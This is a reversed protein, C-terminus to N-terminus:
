SDWDTIPDTPLRSLLNNSPCPTESFAYTSQAADTNSDNTRSAKSSGRPICDMAHTSLHHIQLCCSIDVLFQYLCDLLMIESANRERDLRMCRLAMLYEAKGCKRWPNKNLSPINMQDQSTKSTPWLTTPATPNKASCAGVCMPHYAPSCPFTM